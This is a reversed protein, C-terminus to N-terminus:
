GFMNGAATGATIGTLIPNPSEFRQYTPSGKLMDAYQGIGYFPTRYDAQAQQGAISRQAEGMNFMANVDGMMYNQAQGGMRGYLDGIGMQTQAAQQAAQTAQDFGGAYLGSMAKATADGQARALEADMLAGRSASGAFGGSQIQRQAQQAQQAGFQRNLDTMTTDAVQQIYPNMYASVAGPGTAQMASTAAQGGATMFPQYAGMGGQMINQAQTQMGTFGPHLQAGTPTRAPDILGKMTPLVTGAMETQILEEMTAM